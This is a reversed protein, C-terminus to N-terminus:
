QTEGEFVGTHAQSNERLIFIALHRALILHRESATGDSSNRGEFKRSHATFGIVALTPLKM